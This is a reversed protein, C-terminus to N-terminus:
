QCQCTGSGWGRGSGRSAGGGGARRGAARGGAAAARTGAGAGPACPPRAGPTVGVWPLAAVLSREAPCSTLHCCLEYLALNSTVGDGRLDGLGRGGSINRPLKARGRCM